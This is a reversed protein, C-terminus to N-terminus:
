RRSGDAWWPTEAAGRPRMWNLFAFPLESSADGAFFAGLTSELREGELDRIIRGNHAISISGREESVVLAVADSGETIGLAARHRLGLHRDELFATTLPMVCAAAALRGEQIIVAGDHLVTHHDFITTLLETTVRADVPVGTEIYEKLGTEREFVILAGINKAAMQRTAAIVASLMEGYGADHTSLPGFLNGRGLRELARRLEPQFIVPVAVLIAPLLQAVLWSLASLRVLRGLLALSVLLAVIGRVLPVARTGRLAYFTTFFLASVLFIDLLDLWSLRQILWSIDWM